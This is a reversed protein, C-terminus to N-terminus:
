WCCYKIYSIADKVLKRQRVRERIRELCIATVTVQVSEEEGRPLKGDHRSCKNAYM